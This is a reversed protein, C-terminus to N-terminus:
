GLNQISLYIFHFLQLVLNAVIGAALDDLMIGWGSPFQEFRRIFGPKRIDLLRFLLFAALLFIWSRPLFLLSVGMGVVEDIVVEKPDEQKLEESMRTSAYVGLFFLFIMLGALISDTFFWAILLGALSGWTGPFWPLKGVYFFTGILYLLKM